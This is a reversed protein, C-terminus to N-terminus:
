ITKARSKLHNSVKSFANLEAESLGNALLTFLENQKDIIEKIYKMGKETIKVFNKRRDQPDAVRRVLQKIELHDIQRLIASKDKKLTEAIDQQILNENYYVALLIGFSEIPLEIRLGSVYRRFAYQIERLTLAMNLFEPIKEKEM